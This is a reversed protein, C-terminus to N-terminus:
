AVGQQTVHPADRIAAPLASLAANSTRLGDTLMRIQDALMDNRADVLENTAKLESIRAERYAIERLHTSRPILWERVLALVVFAALGTYTAIGAWPSTLLPDM